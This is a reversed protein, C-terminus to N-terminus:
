QLLNKRVWEEPRPSTVVSGAPLEGLGPLDDDSVFTVPYPTVQKAEAGELINLAFWLAAEGISPDPAASVTSYGTRSNEAQWWSVFDTTNGGSISPFDGEYDPSQLFAQLIGYDDGGGQAFVGDIHPLNPLVSTVAAQATPGSWEGFVEGVVTLGPFEELVKQQGSYIANEAGAGKVGRVLLINGEGGLVEAVGRATTTGYDEFDVTLKYACDATPVNDFGVVLIDAACARQIVGNLATESAAVVLIADVGRLILDNFQAVQTNVSGDGNLTVFDAIRGDAKAQSAAEEFADVMIHRWTNGFYSNSLGIVYDEASASTAAVAAGMALAALTSTTKM